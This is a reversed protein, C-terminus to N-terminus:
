RAKSVRMRGAAGEEAAATLNGCGEWETLEVAASRVRPMAETYYICIITNRGLKKLVLSVGSSTIVATM